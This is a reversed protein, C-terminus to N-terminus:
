LAKKENERERQGKNQTVSGFCVQAPESVANCVSAEIFKVVFMMQQSLDDDFTTIIYISLFCM